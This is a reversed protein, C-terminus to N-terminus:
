AAIKPRQSKPLPREYDPQPKLRQGSAADYREPWLTAPAVGLAKAIAKEGKLNPERLTTSATCRPLRFARDIDRLYPYGALKLRLKIQEARDLADIRIEQLM